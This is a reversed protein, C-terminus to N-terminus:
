PNEEFARKVGLAPAIIRLIIPLRPKFEDPANDILREVYETGSWESKSLGKKSKEYTSVAWDSIFVFQAPLYTEMRKLGSPFGTGNPSEHHQLILSELADDSLKADRIMQITREPHSRFDAFLQSSADIEMDHLDKDEILKLSIDRVLAAFLLTKFARQSCEGQSMFMSLALHAGLLARRSLPSDLSVFLNKILMRRMEPAKIFQYAPEGLMELRMVKDPHLRVLRIDWFCLEVARVYMNIKREVNTESMINEFLQGFREDMFAEIASNEIYLVDNKKVLYRDIREQEPIEGKNVVKLFKNNLKVFIEFSMPKDFHLAARPILVHQSDKEESLSDVTITFPESGNFEARTKSM